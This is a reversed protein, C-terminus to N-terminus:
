RRAAPTLLAHAGGRPVLQQPPTVEWSNGWQPSGKRHLPNQHKERPGAGAGETSFGFPGLQADDGHRSWPTTSLSLFTPPFFPCGPWERVWLM